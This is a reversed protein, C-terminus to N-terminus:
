RPDIRFFRDGPEERGARGTLVEGVGVVAGHAATEVAARGGEDGAYKEWRWATAAEYEPSGHPVFVLRGEARKGDIRVVVRDDRAAHQPWRELRGGVCDLDCGVYPVGEYVSFWLTLSRGTALLEMELEHRADLAPWDLDNLAVLEGSRLPGGHFVWLPGDARAMAFAGLAFGIGGIGLAIALRRPWRRPQSSEEM